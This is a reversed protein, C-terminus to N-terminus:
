NVTLTGTFVGGNLTVNNFNVSVGSQSTFGTLSVLRSTNNTQTVNVTYTGAPINDVTGGAEFFSKSKIIVGNQIFNVSFIRLATTPVSVPMYAPSACSGNANAIEQAARNRQENAESLSVYSIYAGEPINVPYPVGIYGAPCDTKAIYNNAMPSSAYKTASYSYQFEDTKYVGTGPKEKYLRVLRGLEDYEYRTFLNNNDLIHTLEGSKSSYVYANTAANLPQFRMDDAYAEISAHDNRCGVNLTAAAVIDTGNIVLDILYWGNAVKTSSGSSISTAKVVGNIDYYLKVDSASGSVPKVWVSAKYDRGVVLSNTSVTYVFAKQGSTGIKLSNAGTHPVAALTGNAKKVFVNNAQNIGDDEAGSYAIEYFKGPGGSLVMQKSGYDAKSAMFNNNIDKEELVKSYVDFLTTETIKRWSADSSGPTTWNFDPFSMSTLGDTTKTDPMWSYAAQKRWVNGNTAPNNQVIINGPDDIVNASNSWTTIDAAVLGLKTNTADVKYVYVGTEQTLMNRNSNDNVKLGLSSYKRYAPIVKTLLRNGYPDTAVTETVAGSYFDFALTQTKTTTGAKYDITTTGVQVNPYEERAIMTAKDLGEALDSQGNVRKQTSFRERIVGQYNFQQMLADYSTSLDTVTKNELGDYLYHNITESLKKGNNDYNIVRKMNGISATFNKIAQNSYKDYTTGNYTYQTRTALDIRDVMNKHFVEFEYSTKGEVTLEDSDPNKVSQSVSVHQYMVDLAPLERAIVFHKHLYKFIEKKYPKKFLDIIGSGSIICPSLYGLDFPLVGSGVGPTLSNEYTYSAKSISNDTTNVVQISRVRIGARKNVNPINYPIHGTTIGYTTGGSPAFLSGLGPTNLVLVKTGPNYSVVNFQTNADYTNHISYAVPVSSSLISRLFILSTQTLTSLYANIEENVNLVTLTINQTSSNYSASNFQLFPVAEIVSSYSDSEYEMKLEAGLATVVKRLSWVDTSKHSINSVQRRVAENVIPTTTMNDAIYDSKYFGILDYNDKKYVPNKTTTATVTYNGYEPTTLFTFNYQKNGGGQITKKTIVINHTLTNQQFSLIDGENFDTTSNFQAFWGSSNNVMTISGSVQDTASLEYEFKMPPLLSTFEKGRIILQKLTLKGSKVSPSFLSFSNTTNPCLSYDYVFEASRLSVTAPLPNAADANKVLYIKDLKPTTASTNDFGGAHNKASFIATAAGKGDMRESKSFVATHTRTKVSSLYYLEKKGKSVSRFENDVDIRFGEAPNRWNHANTWRSYDFTVWYGWDGENAKADQNRDVFDPGTIATLLWQYAYYQNKQHNNWVVGNSQDIKENYLEELYAYTPLSYHYRVGSENTITFGKISSTSVLPPSESSTPALYGREFANANPGSFDSVSFFEINRSGYLKGTTTNYGVIGGDNGYVPSGDMPPTQVWYNAGGTYNLTVDQRYTNSFDNIFRFKPNKHPITHNFSSMGYIVDSQYYDPNFVGGNTYKYINSGLLYGQYLYPRISGGIGQGSVNYVDFDPLTGGVYKEPEDVISQDPLSYTDFYNIIDTEQSSHLYSPSAANGKLPTTGSFNLSGITSNTTSEDSYYRSYNLGVSFMKGISLSGGYNKTTIRGGAPNATYSTMGSFRGVNKDTNLTNPRSRMSIGLSSNAATLNWKNDIYNYSGNLGVTGGLINRSLSLSNNSLTLGKYGMSIGGSIGKYSDYSISLGSSTNTETLAIGVSVSFSYGGSWYDRRTNTNELNFDDPYGNVSRTLAGVNLNWGLGVWTAEQNTQIGSHYSLAIPYGGEPGPVEMVPVSYTFDGTQLNVMDTTDIPEFSTAEPQAPGSTLAYTITPSLVNTLMVLLLTAAIMRRFRKRHLM